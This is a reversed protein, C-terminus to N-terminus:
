GSAGQDHILDIMARLRPLIFRGDEPQELRLAAQVRDVSNM